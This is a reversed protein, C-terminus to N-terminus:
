SQQGKEAHEATHHVVAQLEENSSCGELADIVRSAEAKTLDKASEVARGGLVGTMYQREGRDTVGLKQFSVVLKTKQQDTIGPERPQEDEEVIEVDVAGDEDPQQEVPPSSPAPDRTAAGEETSPEQEAGTPASTDASRGEDEDAVAASADRPTAAEPTQSAAAPPGDGTSPVGQGSGEEAAADSTSGRRTLSPSRRSTRTTRTPQATAPQEGQEAADVPQVKPERKPRSRTPEPQTEEVYEVVVEGDTSMAELEEISRLGHIVDAFVLRCLETTARATLMQRPYKSYNPQSKTLGAREADQFTWTVETWADPDDHDEVRRGRVTVEQSSVKGFRIEHGRQAVLGRMVEASIGPKGNIVHISSLATMPPLGLERGTLIAAAAKAGAGEGRERLSAPVFETHCIYSALKAVDGMTDVWSDTVPQLMSGRPSYTEIETM